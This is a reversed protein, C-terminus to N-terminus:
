PAAQLYLLWGGSDPTAISSGAVLQAPLAAERTQGSKPDFWTGRLSAPLAARLVIAAGDPAYLLVHRRAADALAWNRRADVLADNPLMDALVASLRSQVFADLPTRDAERGQGHGATPNRMIVRAGGAMLAPVQGVGSHWAVIAKDPYRARYDRVQRYVLEPTSADGFERPHMERFALNDGGRPAWLSGDPLDHWYRMDIVAVQAARAPDALLGDTVNKSTDLVLKVRRGHRSEWEAVTAGFFQQFALPGSYQSALGFVINKATGLQDLVHFIYRRHLARLKPNAVDYFQNAVHIRDRAELPMPEPLGTDNINNAPRWPFDTWHAATELLNHNNYLHHFLVIGRQDCQAAFAAVRSFYWPNYRTLDYKSLGDQASGQGSRAWPLEYFAAWVNADARGVITHDDRRRDYWIAPSSAYFPMGQAKVRAALEALNETLGPGERGPVFRSISMGADLANAPSTQGLWWADNVAGGWLTTDGIVFRGNRITLPASPAAALPAPARYTFRAIAAIKAVNLAAYGPAAAPLQAA